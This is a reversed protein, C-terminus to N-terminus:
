QDRLAVLPDVGLARRAPIACALAMVLILLLPTLTYSSPDHPSVHYLLPGLSAAMASAGALGAGIGLAAIAVAERSVLRVIDAPQAGLASRIAIERTRQASLYATVGFLGITAIAVAFLAFAALVIAYTRPRALSNMVRDEMTLISDVSLAPQEERLIERIAPALAAPDAGRVVYILESNTLPWQTAAFYIEPQPPDALGGFPQPGLRALGGQRVDDVVGAVEWDRDKAIPIQLVTGVADAPLYRAAFTRNVVVVQRSQATDREELARGAAVRLRLAAFYGPSVSRMITQAQVVISADAPSPITFARFGGTTVFPLANGFGVNIVGPLGRLREQVRGVASSQAAFTTPAMTLHATLVERPDFGRDADLMAM